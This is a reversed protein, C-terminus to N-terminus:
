FGLVIETGTVLTHKFLVEGNTTTAKSLRRFPAPLFLRLCMVFPLVVAQMLESLIVHGACSCGRERFATM